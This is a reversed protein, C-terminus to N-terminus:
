LAIGGGLLVAFLDLTIAGLVVKTRWVFRLGQMLADLGVPEHEGRERPPVRVFVLCAAAVAFLFAALAYVAEPKWAFLLGGVAPGTIVATTSAVSRLAVANPVLDVPVVEPTLAQSAPWGIASAVGTAGALLFYPWVVGADSV